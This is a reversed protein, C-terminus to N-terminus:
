APEGLQLRAIVEVYKKAEELTPVPIPTMNAWPTNRAGEICYRYEGNKDALIVWVGNLNYAGTVEGSLAYLTMRGGRQTISNYGEGSKWRM